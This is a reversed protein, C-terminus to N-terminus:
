LAILFLLIQIEYLRSRRYSSGNWVPQGGGFFFFLPTTFCTPTLRCGFAYHDCFCITEGRQLNGQPSTSAGPLLTIETDQDAPREIYSDAKSDRLKLLTRHPLDSADPNADSSANSLITIVSKGRVLRSFILEQPDVTCYYETYASFFSWRETARRLIELTVCLATMLVLISNSPSRRPLFIQRRLTLKLYVQGFVLFM